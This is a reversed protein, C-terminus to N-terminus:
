KVIAQQGFESNMWLSTSSLHLFAHWNRYFEELVNSLRAFFPGSTTPLPLRSHRAHVSHRIMEAEVRWGRGEGEARGSVVM